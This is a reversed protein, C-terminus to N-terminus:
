PGCEARLLFEGTNPALTLSGEHCAGDWDVYSGALKGALPMTLPSRVGGAHVVAVGNEFERIWLGSGDRRYEGLPAGTPTDYEDYYPPLRDNRTEFCFFAYSDDRRGLLYSALAYRFIKHGARVDKAKAKPFVFVFRDANSPHALTEIEEHWAAEPRFYGDDEGNNHIFGENMTGDLPENFPAYNNSNAVIHAAGLRAKVRELAAINAEDYEHNTPMPSIPNPKMEPVAYRTFGEYFGNQDLFFGDLAPIQQRLRRFRDILYDLYEPNRYDMYWLETNSVQVRNGSTDHWFWDEHANVVNWEEYACQGKCFNSRLQIGDHLIVPVDPSVADAMGDDVSNKGVIVYDFKRVLPAFDPTYSGGLHITYTCIGNRPCLPFPEPLVRAEVGPEVIEDSGGGCSVAGLVLLTVTSVVRRVSFLTM